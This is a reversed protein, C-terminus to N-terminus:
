AALAILRQHVKQSLVVNVQGVDTVVARQARQLSAIDAPNLYISVQLAATRDTGMFAQGNGAFGLARISGPVLPHVPKQAFVLQVASDTLVVGAIASQM